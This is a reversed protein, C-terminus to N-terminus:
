EHAESSAARDEYPKGQSVRLTCASDNFRVVEASIECGVPCWQGLRYREATIGEIDPILLLAPFGVGIDLWAGFPANAVITGRVLQGVKLRQKLADWNRQATEPDPPPFGVSLDRDWGDYQTSRWIRARSAGRQMTGAEVRHKLSDHIL